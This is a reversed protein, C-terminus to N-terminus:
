TIFKFLCKKGVFVYIFSSKYVGINKPILKFKAIFQKGDQGDYHDNSTLQEFTEKNITDTITLKNIKDVLEKHTEKTCDFLLNYKSASLIFECKTGSLKRNVM